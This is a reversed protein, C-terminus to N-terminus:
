NAWCAAHCPVSPQRSELRLQRWMAPQSRRPPWQTARERSTFRTYKSQQSTADAACGLAREALPGLVRYLASTSRWALSDGSSKLVLQHSKSCCEGRSWSRITIAATSVPLVACIYLTMV